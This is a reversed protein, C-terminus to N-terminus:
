RPAFGHQVAFTLFLVKPAPDHQSATGTRSFRRYQLQEALRQTLVHYDQWFGRADHESAAKWATVTVSSPARRLPRDEM